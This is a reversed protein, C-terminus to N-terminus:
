VKITEGVKADNSVEVDDLHEVRKIVCGLGIYVNSGRVVDAITNELYIDDGEISVTELQHGRMKFLKSLGGTGRKVSISGCGIEKASCDGNMKIEINEANLLGGIKFSGQVNLDDSECHGGVTLSGHIDINKGILDNSLAVSGSIDINKVTVTGDIKASGSVNLDMCEINGIIKGSGSLDISVAKIDGNFVSSGSGQISDCIIDGNVKGSGSIDINEYTGGAASGSGHIVLDNKVTNKM